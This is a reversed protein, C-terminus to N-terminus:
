LDEPEFTTYGSGDLSSTSVGRALVSVDRESTGTNEVVVRLTDGIQYAVEVALRTDDTVLTAPEQQPAVPRDGTFVRTELTGNPSSASQVEVERLLFEQTREVTKSLVAERSGAGVAAFGTYTAQAM